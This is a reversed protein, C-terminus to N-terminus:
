SMILAISMLPKIVAPGAPRQPRVSAPGARDLGPGRLCVVVPLCGAPRRRFAAM